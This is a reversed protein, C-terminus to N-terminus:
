SVGNARVDLQHFLPVRTSRLPGRVPLYEGTDADFTAGIVPTDPRGSALQFRAGLEWGRGPKWSGVANLVHPQDFATAVWHEGPHSQQHARSFTYSLWGFAHESIERKIIM